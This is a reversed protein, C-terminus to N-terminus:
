RNITYTGVFVQGTGTNTHLSITSGCVTHPFPHRAASAHVYQIYVDLIDFPRFYVYSDVSPEVTIAVSQIREMPLVASLDLDAGATTSYSGVLFASPHWNPTIWNGLQSFPSTSGTSNNRVFNIWRISYTAALDAGEVDLSTRVVGDDCIFLHYNTNITNPITVDQAVASDLIVTNTSDMCTGAAVTVTNGSSSCEFGMMNGTVRAGSPVMQPTGGFEPSISIIPNNIDSSDIVIENATGTITEVYEEAQLATVNGQLTTVNTQLTDVEGEVIDLRNDQEANKATYAPEAVLGAAIFTPDSVGGTTIGDGMRFTKNTSDWVLEGDELVIADLEAATAYPPKFISM